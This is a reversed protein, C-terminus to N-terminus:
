IEANFLGYRTSIDNFLPVLYLYNPYYDSM